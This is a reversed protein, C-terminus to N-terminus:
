TPGEQDALPDPRSGFLLRVAPLAAGAGLLQMAVFGTVSAPDIGAFTDSLTRAVTVAPNAFSTSSTFFYAGGIYCAVAAAVSSANGSRMLGFVVLVLGFTAVAESFWINSGDRVTESLDVADLGFMLNATVTGVAAGAFQVACYALTELRRRGGLVADALTVVPNVHAGSVPGLTVIIVYLAAATAAANALLVLGADDSLREAMIGSGIVSVLLMATGVFEACLRRASEATKPHPQPPEPRKVARGSGPM